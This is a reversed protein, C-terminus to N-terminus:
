FAPFLCLSKFDVIFNLHFYFVILFGSEVSSTLFSAERTWAELDFKPMSMQGGSGWRQDNWGMIGQQGSTGIQLLIPENM